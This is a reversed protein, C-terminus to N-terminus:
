RPDATAGKREPARPGDHLLLAEMVARHTARAILEGVKAHGGAYTVRPGRGTPVVVVTDTGTGTALAGETYSSPVGLDQFAATKAETALVVASTQAGDTFDADVLLIVNVTGASEINRGEDTGARHANTRAGATVLATVVFPEFAETVVAMHDMDVATSVLVVRDEEAGLRVSLRAEVQELYVDGGFAADTGLEEFARAWLEPQAGHNVVFDAEVFGENTTLVRTRQPLGLVLSKEWFGWRQGLQVERTVGHPVDVDHSPALPQDQATGLCSTLVLPLLATLLALKM